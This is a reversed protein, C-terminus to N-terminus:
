WAACPHHVIVSGRPGSASLPSFLRRVAAAKAFSHKRNQLGIPLTVDDATVNHKLGAMKHNLDCPSYDVPEGIKARLECLWTRKRGHM